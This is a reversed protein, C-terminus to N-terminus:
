SEEASPASMRTILHSPLYPRWWAEEMPEDAELVHDPGQEFLQQIRHELESMDGAELCRDVASFLHWAIREAELESYHHRMQRARCIRAAHRKLEPGANELLLARNEERKFDASKLSEGLDGVAKRLTTLAERLTRRRPHRQEEVERQLEAIRMKLPATKIRTAVVAGILGGIVLAVIGVLVYIM